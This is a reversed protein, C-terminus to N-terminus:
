AEAEESEDEDEGEEEAERKEIEAKQAEVGEDHKAQVDEESPEGDGEFRVGGAVMAEHEEDTLLVTDGTAQAVGKVVVDQGLKFEKVEPVEDAQKKAM